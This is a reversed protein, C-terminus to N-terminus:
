AADSTSEGACALVIQQRPVGAAMAAAPVALYLTDSVEAYDLISQYLV